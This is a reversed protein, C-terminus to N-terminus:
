IKEFHIYHDITLVHIPYNNPKNGQMRKCFKVCNRHLRLPGDTNLGLYVELRFFEYVWFVQSECNSTLFTAVYHLIKVYM